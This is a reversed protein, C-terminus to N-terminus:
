FMKKFHTQIYEDVSIIDNLSTMQESLKLIELEAADKDKKNKANKRKIEAEVIRKALNKIDKKTM